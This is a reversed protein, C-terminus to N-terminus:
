EMIFFTVEFVGVAGIDEISEVRYLLDNSWVVVDGVCLFVSDLMYVKLVEHNDSYDSEIYEMIDHFYYKSLSM